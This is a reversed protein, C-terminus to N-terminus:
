RPGVIAARLGCEPTTRIAATVRSFTASASPVTIGSQPSGTVPNTAHCRITVHDSNNVGAVLGTLYLTEINARLGSPLLQNTDKDCAVDAPLCRIFDSIVSAIFVLRGFICRNRRSLSFDGFDWYWGWWYDSFGFFDFYRGSDCGLFRPAVIVYSIISLRICLAAHIVDFFTIASPNGAGSGSGLVNGNEDEIHAQVEADYYYATEYDVETSAYGTATDNNEDYTITAYGYAQQAQAQSCMVLCCLAAFLYLSFRSIRM